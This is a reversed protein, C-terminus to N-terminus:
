GKKVAALDAAVELPAARWGGCPRLFPTGNRLSRFNKTNAPNVLKVPIRLVGVRGRAM